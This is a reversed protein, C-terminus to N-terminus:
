GRSLGSPKHRAVEESSLGVLEHPFVLWDSTEHAFYDPTRDTTNRAPKFWVTAIRIDAPEHGVCREHLANELAVASRGTDFVDDVILVRDSSDLREVFYGLGHIRVEPAAEDIGRYASTRVAVHDTECGKWALYEQVAVGPLAGGRWVGVIHTPRYGSELVKAALVFSDELLEQASIFRKTITM